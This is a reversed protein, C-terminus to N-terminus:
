AGVAIAPAAPPPPIAPMAVIPAMAPAAAPAAAPAPVAAPASAKPAPAAPTSDGGGGGGGSKYVAVYELEMGADAGQATTATPDKPWSGGVAVNLTIFFPKSTLDKWDREISAPDEGPNDEFLEAGSRQHYENGDMSFTITWNQWNPSTRDIEHAWTHFTGPKFPTTKGLGEINPPNDHCSDKCHLTGHGIFDKNVTEFTDIEGCEPWAVEPTARFGNGLAWFAPWIGQLDVNPNGVKFSSQFRIKGGEDAVWDLQKPDSEIRCSNWQDGDKQPAILLTGKGTLSCYDGSTPYKQKENNMVPKTYYVWNDKNFAGSGAFDDSWVIQMGDVAAPKLALATGALAAASLVINYRM